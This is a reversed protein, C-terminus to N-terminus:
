DNPAPLQRRDKWRALILTGLGLLLEDVFPVFDPVLIDLVFLGGTLMLLTPFRRRRAWGLIGGLAVRRPTVVAAM